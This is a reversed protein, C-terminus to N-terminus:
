PKLMCDENGICPMFFIWLYLSYEGNLHSNYDSLIALKFLMILIVQVLLPMIRKRTKQSHLSSTTCLAGFHLSTHNHCVLHSRGGLLRLWHECHAWAECRWHPKREVKIVCHLLYNIETSLSTASNLIARTYYNLRQKWLMVVRLFLWYLFLKFVLSWKM